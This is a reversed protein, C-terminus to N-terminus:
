NGSLQRSVTPPVVIGGSAAAIENLLPMNCLTNRLELLGSPDISVTTEIPRTYKESALLETLRAGQLQLRVPGPPLDPMMGHYSGPRREDESLTVNQLVKGKQWAEVQLSAGSVMRGDLQRLQASLQVPEGVEYRIKDTSLRASQSGEAMDRATVWRLLQGWFRNHFTDGQRYRLQYTLPAALYVVRGAGVFHWALFSRIGPDARDLVDKKKSAWILSHTTPKAKSYESLSYIPTREGMGRWVMQSAIPNEAIQTALSQADEEAVHLYIREGNNAARDVRTVPLLPELPGGLYAAPMADKGAIMILNGGMETVYERLMKQQDASLQSPLVDGLIIIRYKAWEELTSPFSSRVGQGSVRQPEFLLQDFTIREDRKFLNLLYRTEWRPFNDAVLVRMTEEMVQIDVVARNNEESSEDAVPKVRMALTHKGTVAAKWRM